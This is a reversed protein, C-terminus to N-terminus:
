IYMRSLIESRTNDKRKKVEDNDLFLQFARELDEYSIKKRLKVGKGFVRRAHAIKTLHFLIEMDGGSYKFYELNDEFFKVKLSNDNLLLWKEDKVM